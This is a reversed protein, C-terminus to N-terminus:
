SMRLRWESCVSVVFSLQSIYFTCSEWQVLWFQFQVSDKKKKSNCVCKVLNFLLSVIDLSTLHSGTTELGCLRCMSLSFILTKFNHHWCSRLIVQCHIKKHKRLHFKMFNTLTTIIWYILKNLLEKKRFIWYKCLPFLCM